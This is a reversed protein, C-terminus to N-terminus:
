WFGGDRIGSRSGLLLVRVVVEAGFGCYGWDEIGYSYYEMDLKTKGMMFVAAGVGVWM